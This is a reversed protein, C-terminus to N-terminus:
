FSMKSLAQRKLADCHYRSVIMKKEPDLVLVFSMGSKDEPWMAGLMGAKTFSSTKGPGHKDEASKMMHRFASSVGSLLEIYDEHYLHSIQIVKDGAFHYSLIQLDNYPKNFYILVKDKDTFIKAKDEFAKKAKSIAEERTDGMSVTKDKLTYVSNSCDKYTTKSKCSCLALCMMVILTRM